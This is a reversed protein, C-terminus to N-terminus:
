HPLQKIVRAPNGGVLTFPPVDKTVVAGAAIIAGEGITVGKLIIANFNIWVFDNIIIPATIINEKEKRIGAKYQM